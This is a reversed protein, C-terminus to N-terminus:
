RKLSYFFVKKAVRFSAVKIHKLLYFATREFLLTAWRLSYIIIKVARSKNLFKEIVKSFRLVLPCNFNEKFWSDLIDIWTQM